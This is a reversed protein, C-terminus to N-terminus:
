ESPVDGEVGSDKTKRKRVSPQPFVSSKTAERLLRHIADDSKPNVNGLVCIKSKYMVVLDPKKNDPIEQLEKHLAKAAASRLDRTEQFTTAETVTTEISDTKGTRDCTANIQVKVPVM